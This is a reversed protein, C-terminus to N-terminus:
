HIKKLTELHEALEISFNRAIDMGYGVKHKRAIDELEDINYQKILAASYYLENMVATQIYASAFRCMIDLINEFVMENFTDSIQLDIILPLVYENFEEDFNKLYSEWYEKDIGKLEKELQIITKM